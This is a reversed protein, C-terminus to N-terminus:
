NLWQITLKYRVGKTEMKDKKKVHTFGSGYESYTRIRIWLAGSYPNFVSGTGFGSGCCQFLRLRVPSRLM